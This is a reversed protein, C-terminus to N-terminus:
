GITVGAEDSWGDGVLRAPTRNVATGLHSNLIIFDDWEEITLLRDSPVPLGEECQDYTETLARRITTEDASYKEALMRSIEGLSKRKRYEEESVRRGEGGEAAM